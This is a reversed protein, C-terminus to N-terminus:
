CCYVSHLKHQGRLRITEALRRIAVIYAGKRNDVGYERATKLVECTSNHMTYELKRDIEDPTWKDGGNNQVWEYYSVTVGGANALIDPLIFVGKKALISDAQLTVPGNALELIIKAKVNEANRDTIVSEKAAPVLVDCDLLLLDDTTINQAGPFNVVSGTADKFQKVAAINLGQANYIGGRSDSVAVIIVSDRQILHAFNYGANGFGQVVVKLGSLNNISLGFQNADRVTQRLVFQGGRATATERGPCGHLELPKGTVIGWGRPELHGGHIQQWADL